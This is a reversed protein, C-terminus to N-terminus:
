STIHGAPQEPSADVSTPFLQRVYRTGGVLDVFMLLGYWLFFSFALVRPDVIGARLFALLSVVAVVLRCISIAFMLSPLRDVQDPRILRLPIQGALMGLFACSGAIAVGVLMGRDLGAVMATSWGVMGTAFVMWSLRGSPSMTLADGTSTASTLRNDSHPIM